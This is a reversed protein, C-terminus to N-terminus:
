GEVPKALEYALSEVLENAAPLNDRSLRGTLLDKALKILDEVEGDLIKARIFSPDQIVTLVMDKVAEADGANEIEDMSAIDALLTAMQRIKEDKEAILDPSRTLFESLLMMLKTKYKASVKDAKRDMVLTSDENSSIVLGRGM